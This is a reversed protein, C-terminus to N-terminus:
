KDILNYSSYKVGLNECKSSMSAQHQWIADHIKTLVPEPLPMNGIQCRVMGQVVASKKNISGELVFKTNM